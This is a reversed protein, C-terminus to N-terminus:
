QTSLKVSSWCVFRCGRQQKLKHKNIMQKQCLFMFAGSDLLLISLRVKIQSSGPFTFAARSSHCFFDPDGGFELWTIEWSYFLPLTNELKWGHRNTKKSIRIASLFSFGKKYKVPLPLSRLDVSQKEFHRFPLIEVIHATFSSCSWDVCTTDM